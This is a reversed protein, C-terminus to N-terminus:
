TLGLELNNLKIFLNHNRLEKLKKDNWKYDKLLQEFMIQNYLICEYSMYKQIIENCTDIRDQVNFRCKICKTCYIYNLIYCIWRIKKLDSKETVNDNDNDNVEYVEDIKNNILNIDLDNIDNIDNDNNPLLQQNNENNDNNKQIKKLLIKKIMRHNDYIKNYVTNLVTSITAKISMFLACINGLVSLLKKDKRKYEEYETHYNLIQISGIVRYKDRNFAGKYRFTPPLPGIKRDSIYGTTYENKKGRWSDLFQFISKENKYKIITWFLLYQTPNNINFILSGKLTGEDFPDPKSHDLSITPYTFNFIFYDKFKSIQKDNDKLNCEDDSKNKCRYLFELHFSSAKQTINFSNLNMYFKNATNDYFAFNSSYNRYITQTGNFGITIYPNLEPDSDLLRRKKGDIRSFYKSYEIEYKENLIYGYVNLFSVFIIFFIFLIFIFGGFTTKNATKQFIYLNHPQSFFDLLVLKNM